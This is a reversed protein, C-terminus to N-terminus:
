KLLKNYIDQLQNKVKAPTFNNLAIDTNTKKMENLLDPKSVLTLIGDAFVKPDKSDSLWGNINHKVWTPIGGIPRTVIALGYLMAEMIVLPLGETISPFFLIDAAKFCNHKELGTVHGPFTVNTLNQDKVFQKCKALEPGDGAMILEFTLDSNVSQLYQFSQLVIDIGKLPVFGGIFLLRYTKPKSPGSHEPAEIYTDDAITPLYEVKKCRIGLGTLKKLFLEGLLIFVDTMNFVSLFVKKYFSNSRIKEEFEDDWGHLFVIVKKNFLKSIMILVGDRMVAKFDFSPNLHVIRKGRIQRIFRFLMITFFWVNASSNAKTNYFYEIEDSENLKLSRYINGVGGKFSPHPITILIHKM